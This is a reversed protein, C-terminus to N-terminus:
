FLTVVNAWLWWVIVPRFWTSSPAKLTKMAPTQLPDQWEAQSQLSTIALTAILAGSGVTRTVAGFMARVSCLSRM